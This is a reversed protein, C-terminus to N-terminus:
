CRWTSPRPPRWRVCTASAAAAPSRRCSIAPTAFGYRGAQRAITSKWCTSSCVADDAEVGLEGAANHWVDRFQSETSHERPTDKVLNPLRAFRELEGTRLDMEIFGHFFSVQFYVKREGPSLTMPRVATSMGERGAADLEARLDYRRLVEFTRADVVQFVREGKTPDAPTATSPRTSWASAPTSSRAAATSTSARTPRAARPSAASSRATASGCCTSRTPPRPASWSAAATPRSPWTTPATATSRSGGPSGAPASGSRQRRRRVLAAVRDAAPRRPLHVHRRRVPQQGRRDGGPDRPLVGAARPQDHDRADAARPRPHHRDPRAPPVHRARARHRHRGLQQRRLRRAPRRGPRQADTAGAPPPLGTLATAVAVTAALLATSLRTRM